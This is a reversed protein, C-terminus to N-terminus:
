LIDWISCRGSFTAETKASNIVEEADIKEIEGAEDFNGAKIAEELVKLKDITRNYIEAKKSIQEKIREINELEKKIQEDIDFIRCKRREDNEIEAREAEFQALREFRWKLDNKLNSLETKRLELEQLLLRYKEFTREVKLVKFFLEAMAQEESENEAIEAVFGIKENNFNALNFLRQYIVEKVRM